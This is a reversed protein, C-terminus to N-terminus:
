GGSGRSAECARWCTRGALEAAADSAATAATRARKRLVSQYMMRHKYTGRKGALAGHPAAWHQVRQLRQHVPCAKQVARCPSGRVASRRAAAHGQMQGSCCSVTSIVYMCAAAGPVGGSIALLGLRPRETCLAYSVRCASYEARRSCHMCLALTARRTCCHLAACLLATCHLVTHLATCRATCHLATHLAAHKCHPSATRLLGRGRPWSCCSIMRAYMCTAVGALVGGPAGAGQTCVAHVGQQMRQGSIAM